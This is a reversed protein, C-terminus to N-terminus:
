GKAHSRLHGNLAFETKFPGKGCDKPCPFSQGDEGRGENEELERITPSGPANVWQQWKPYQDEDFTAFGDSFRIVDGPVLPETDGPLQTTRVTATVGPGLKLEPTEECYLVITKGM